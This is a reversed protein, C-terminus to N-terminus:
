GESQVLLFLGVERAARDLDRPASPASLDVVPVSSFRRRSLRTRSRTRTAASVASRALMRGVAFETKVGQM